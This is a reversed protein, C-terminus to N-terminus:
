SLMFVLLIILLVIVSTLIFFNNNDQHKNFLHEVAERWEMKRAISEKVLFLYKREMAKPNGLKKLILFEDDIFASEFIEGDCDKQGFIMKNQIYRWSGCVLDGDISLLYEEEPNFIRLVIEHFDDDDRVEVLHKGVYFKEERLDESDHKILKIVKDLYGDLDSAVPMEQNFLDAINDLFKFNLAIKETFILKKPSKSM